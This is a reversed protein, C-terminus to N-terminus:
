TFRGCITTITKPMITKPEVGEVQLILPKSLTEVGLFWFDVGCSKCVLDPAVHHTYGTAADARNSSHIIWNWTWLCLNWVLYDWLFHHWKHPENCSVSLSRTLSKVLETLNGERLTHVKTKMFGYSMTTLCEGYGGFQTWVHHCTFHLVLELFKQTWWSRGTSLLILPPFPAAIRYSFFRICM